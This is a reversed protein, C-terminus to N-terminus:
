FTGKVTVTKLFEKAVLSAINNDIHKAKEGFGIVLSLDCINNIERPVGCSAEYIIKCASDSFLKEEKGAVHCRHEIYNKTEEQSLAELHYRISLRQELQPIRSIKEKLEPQGFILLTILFKEETQFNLLLRLQEFTGEADIAQAEDIIIVTHKNEKWASNLIAQLKRFLDIKRDKKEIKGTLQYTIESLLEYSSISPNIILCSLYRKDENSIKSIIVRTLFTKGSGIEGTLLGAGKHEHICYLIRMLAEEHKSSLYLFRPDPTNEFPKEKFGWYNEYM